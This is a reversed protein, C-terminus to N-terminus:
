AAAPAARRCRSISCGHACGDRLMPSSCRRRTAHCAGACLRARARATRCSAARAAGRGRRACRPRATGEVFAGEGIAQVPQRQQLSPELAGASRSGPDGSPGIAKASRPCHRPRAIGARQEGRSGLPSGNISSAHSGGSRRKRGRAQRDAREVGDVIQRQRQLASGGHLRAAIRQQEAGHEPPSVSGCQPGRHAGGVRHGAGRRRVDMRADFRRRKSWKSSCAPERFRHDIDVPDCYGIRREVAQDGVQPRHARGITRSARGRKTPLAALAAASRANAAAPSPERGDFREFDEM